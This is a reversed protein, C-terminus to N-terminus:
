APLAPAAFDGLFYVRTGFPGENKQEFFDPAPHNEHPHSAQQVFFDIFSMTESLNEVSRKQLWFCGKALPKQPSEKWQSPMAQRPIQSILTHQLHRFDGKKWPQFIFSFGLFTEFDPHERLKSLNKKFLHPYKKWAVFSIGLTYRFVKGETGAVGGIWQIVQSRLWRGLINVVM